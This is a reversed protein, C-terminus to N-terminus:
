GGARRPVGLKEMVKEFTAYPQAGVVAYRGGLVFTPVGSVGANQAERTLAEVRATFDGREVAQQLADPDLGAETAAARLVPWAGLDEKEEWYRRLLAAHFPDVRGQDRAFETAEHARRTNPVFDNGAWKLGAEAFRARLPSRPDQNMQRYREPLAWGEPPADPRLFFPLWEVKM